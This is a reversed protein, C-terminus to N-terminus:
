YWFITEKKCYVRDGCENTRKSFKLVFKAVAVQISCEFDQGGAGCRTIYGYRGTQLARAFLIYKTFEEFFDDFNNETLSKELIMISFEYGYASTKFLKPMIEHYLICSKDYEDSNSNYKIWLEKVEQNRENYLEYLTKKQNYPIRNRMESALIDYLEAHIFVCELKKPGNLYFGKLYLGDTENIDQIFDAMNNYEYKTGDKHEFELEHLLSDTYEPIKENKVGGYDDYEADFPLILPSYTENYYVRTSENADAKNNVLIIVKVSDGYMIQLHSLMCTENWSGM